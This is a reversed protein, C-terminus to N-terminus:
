QDEEEAIEEWTKRSSKPYYVGHEYMLVVLLEECEVLKDQADLSLVESFQRDGEYLTKIAAKAADLKQNIGTIETLVIDKMKQPTPSGELKVEKEEIAWGTTLKFIIASKVSRLVKFWKLLDGEASALNAEEMRRDLREMLLQAMNFPREEM